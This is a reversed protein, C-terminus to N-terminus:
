LDQDRIDFYMLTSITNPEDKCIFMSLFFGERRRSLHRFLCGGPPASLQPKNHYQGFSKKRRQAQIHLKRPFPVKRIGQLQYTIIYEHRCETGTSVQCNVCNNGTRSSMEHPDKMIKWCGLNIPCFMTGEQCPTNQGKFWYEQLMTGDRCKTQLPPFPITSRICDTSLRSTAELTRSARSSMAILIGETLWEKGEWKISGFAGQTVRAGQLGQLSKKGKKISFSGMEAGWKSITEKLDLSGNSQHLGLKLQRRRLGNNLYGLCLGAWWWGQTGWELM